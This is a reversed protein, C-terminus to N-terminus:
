IPTKITLTFVIGDGRRIDEIDGEYLPEIITGLDKYIGAGIEKCLNILEYDLEKEPSPVFRKKRHM